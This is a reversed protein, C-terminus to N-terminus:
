LAVKSMIIIIEADPTNTLMNAVCRWTQPNSKWAGIRMYNAYYREPVGTEEEKSIPRKLNDTTHKCAQLHTHDLLSQFGRWESQAGLARPYAEHERCGQKPYTSCFISSYILLPISKSWWWTREPAGPTLLDFHNCHNLNSCATYEQYQFHLSIFTQVSTQCTLTTFFLGKIDQLVNM